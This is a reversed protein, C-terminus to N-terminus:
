YIKYRPAPMAERVMYIRMYREEPYFAGPHM